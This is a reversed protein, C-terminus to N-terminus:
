TLFNSFIYRYLTFIIKPIIICSVALLSVILLSRYSCTQKPILKVLQEEDYIINQKKTITKALQQLQKKYQQKKNSDSFRSTSLYFCKAQLQEDSSPFFECHPCIDLPATKEKGCKICITYEQNQPNNELMAFLKRIISQLCYRPPINCREVLYM